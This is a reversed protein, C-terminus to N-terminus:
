SIRFSHAVRKGDGVDVGGGIDFMLPDFLPDRVDGVQGLRFGDVPGVTGLFLVVPQAILHHFRAHQGAEVLFLAGAGVQGARIGGVHGPHFVAGEDTAGLLFIRAGGIVPFFRGLHPFRQIAEELAGHLAAGQVHHGEGHAGQTGGDGVDADFQGVAGVHHGVHADHGAHALADEVHQTAVASEHGADMGHASGQFGPLFIGAPGAVGGGLVDDMVRFGPFDPGVTGTVTAVGQQALLTKGQADSGVHGPVLAPQGFVHEDQAHFGRFTFLGVHRCGEGGGAALGVEGHQDRGLSEVAPFDGGDTVVDGPDLGPFVALEVGDVRFSTEEAHGGAGGFLGIVVGQGSQALVHNEGVHGEGIVPVHPPFAHGLFGRGM